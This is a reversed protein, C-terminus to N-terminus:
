GCDVDRWRSMRAPAKSRLPRALKALEDRLPGESLTADIELEGAASWGLAAAITRGDCTYITAAYRPAEGEERVFHFRAGNRPHLRQSTATTM